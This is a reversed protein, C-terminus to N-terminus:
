KVLCNIRAPGPLMLDTQEMCTEIEGRVESSREENVALIIPPMVCGEVLDRRLLQYIKGASSVKRRQLENKRLIDTALTWYEGLPIDLSVNVARIKRDMLWSHFQVM